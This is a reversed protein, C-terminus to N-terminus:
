AALGKALIRVASDGTEAAVNSALDLRYCPTSPAFRFAHADTAGLMIRVRSESDALRVAADSDSLADFVVYIWDGVASGLDLYSIEIESVGGAFAVSVPTTTLDLVERAVGVGKREAATVVYAARDEGQVHSRGNKLDDIEM